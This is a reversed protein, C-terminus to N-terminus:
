KIVLLIILFVVLFPLYRSLIDPPLIPLMRQALSTYEGQLLGLAKVTEKYKDM